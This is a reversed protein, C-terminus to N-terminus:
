DNVWWYDYTRKYKNHNLVQKCKRVRKSCVRRLFRNSRPSRFYQRIFRKKEEDYYAAYFNHAEKTLKKLKRKEYASRQHGM